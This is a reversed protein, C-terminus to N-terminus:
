QGAFSAMPLDEATASSRLAYANEGGLQDLNGTIENDIGKPIITEEIVKRIKSSIEGIGQRNDAKLLSLQGLLSYFEANKGIIEKYAETSVCFGEPVLIGKIRSLEGLNAGKGGVLALMTKDIERFSLVLYSM